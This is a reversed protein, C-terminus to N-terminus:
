KKYLYVGISNFFRVGFVRVCVCCLYIMFMTNLVNVAVARGNLNLGLPGITNKNM